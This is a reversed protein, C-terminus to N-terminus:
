SEGEPVQGDQEDRQDDLRPRQHEERQVGDVQPPVAAFHRVGEGLPRPPDHQEGGGEGQREREHTEGLDPPVREDIQLPVFALVVSHNGVHPAHLLDGDKERQGEAHQQEERRQDPHM